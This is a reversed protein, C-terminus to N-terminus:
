AVQMVGCTTRLEALAGLLSYGAAVSALFFAQTQFEFWLCSDLLV